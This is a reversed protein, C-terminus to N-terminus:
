THRYVAPMKCDFHVAIHLEGAIRLRQMDVSNQLDWSQLKTLSAISKSSANNSRRNGALLRLCATCDLDHLGYLLFLRMQATPTEALISQFHSRGDIMVAFYTRAHHKNFHGHRRSFRQSAVAHTTCKWSCFVTRTNRGKAMVNMRDWIGM